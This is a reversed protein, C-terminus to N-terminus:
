RPFIQNDYKAYSAYAAQYNVVFNFAYFEMVCPRIDPHTQYARGHHWSLICSKLRKYLTDPLFFSLCPLKEVNEVTQLYKASTSCGPDPSSTNNKKHWCVSLCVHM